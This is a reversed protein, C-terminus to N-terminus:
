PGSTAALCAVAAAALAAAEHGAAPIAGTMTLFGHPLGAARGVAVPVGAARLRDAYGLGEDRLPDFGAVWVVAPCLDPGLSAFWPAYRPDARLDPPVACDLMWGMLRRDLLFGDGLTAHSPQSRTLDVAPYLLIQAAPGDVRRALAVCAALNGGASDGGVVVRGPDCGWDAAHARCADFAAVADDWPAPCPHEPALRYAPAVVVWGTDNALRRCAADYGDLSGVTWGGGHYWVLLPGGSRAGLPVYRRVPLPGVAGDIWGDVVEAVPPGPGDLLALQRDLARRAAPPSLRSLHPTPDVRALACVARACPDLAEGDRVVPARRGLGAGLGRIGRQAWGVWAPRSV